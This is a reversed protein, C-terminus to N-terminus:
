GTLTRTGDDPSNSGLFKFPLSPLFSVAEKLVGGGANWIDGATCM